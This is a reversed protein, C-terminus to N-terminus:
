KEESYLSWKLVKTVYYVLTITIIGEGLGILVHAKLMSGLTDFIPYKNSVELELSCLTTTGLVSFWATVFMAINKNKILKNMFNYTYWGVLCGFGAMNVTNAGLAVLGGDAFFLAQILLM